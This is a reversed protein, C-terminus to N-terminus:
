CAPRRATVAADAPARLEAAVPLHDSALPEALVRVEGVAWENAPAAFIFDIEREAATSPFTMRGAAPKAAERARARFLALTRSGPQDNFDGAVIYRGSVEDLYEAVESAQEFRFSDDGVWDFHVSAFTLSQGDLTRVRVALAVRPENGEKLRIVDTDAIECRSLIALGYRGGQYDMFSGFAHHMGLLEGLRAAQDVGGSRTVREDVEQLAVLDADLSRLVRAIRDVSVSDDMGRAHHINYTVVRWSVPAGDDAPRASSACGTIAAYSLLILGVISPRGANPGSGKVM